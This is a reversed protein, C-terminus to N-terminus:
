VLTIMGHELELRDLEGNMVGYITAVGILQYTERGGPCRRVIYPICAGDFLAVRDGTRMNGSASGFREAFTSIITRGQQVTCLANMVNQLPTNLGDARLGQLWATVRAGEAKTLPKAFLANDEGDLFPVLRYTSLEM